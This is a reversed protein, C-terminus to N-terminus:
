SPAHSSTLDRQNNFSKRNNFFVSFCKEGGTTFSSNGLPEWINQDEIVFPGANNLCSEIM